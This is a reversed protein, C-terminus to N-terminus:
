VLKSNMETSHSHMRRGVKEYITEPRLKCNINLKVLNLSESFDESIGFNPDDFWNEPGNQKLEVAFISEEDGSSEIDALFKQDIVHKFSTQKSKSAGVREALTDM